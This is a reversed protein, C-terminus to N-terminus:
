RGSSPAVRWARRAQRSRRAREDDAGCIESPGSPTPAAASASGGDSGNMGHVEAAERERSSCTPPMSAQDKCRVCLPHRRVGECPRPLQIREDSSRGSMDVPSIRVLVASMNMHHFRRGSARRGSVGPWTGGSVRSAAEVRGGSVGRGVRWGCAISLDRCDCQRGSRFRIVPARASAKRRDPLGTRPELSGSRPLRAHTPDVAPRPHRRRRERGAGEGATAPHAGSQGATRDRGRRWLALGVGAVGHCGVRAPRPGWPAAGRHEVAPESPDAGQVPRAAPGAARGPDGPRRSVRRGIAGAWRGRSAPSSVSRCRLHM